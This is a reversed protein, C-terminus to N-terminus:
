YGFLMGRLLCGGFTSCGYNNGNGYRNNFGYRNGGFAYNNNYGRYGYNNGNYYNGGNNYGNSGFAYNNSYGKYGYNNECGRNCNPLDYRNSYNSGFAYAEAGSPIILFGLGILLIFISFLIFLNKM